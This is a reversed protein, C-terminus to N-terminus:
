ETDETVPEAVFIVDVDSAYNLERSGCKGMAIVALRCPAGDPPIEARATALAAELVAAALDSLEEGVEDVSAKGTLDRAALHKSVGLVALLRFRFASDAGLAGPLTADREAIRALGALALDPDAAQALAALLPHDDGTIGIGALQREARTVDGFGMRALWGTLSTRAGSVTTLTYRCGSGGPFVPTVGTTRVPRPLAQRTIPM